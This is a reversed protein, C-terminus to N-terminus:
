RPLWAPKWEYRPGRTLRRVDSGDARMTYLDFTGARDSHFALRKGDPSWTPGYSQGGSRTLRIVGTGNPRMTYIEPRGSRASAFAIRSGDPSWAAEGSRFKLLRRQRSGDANMAYLDYAGDVFVTRSRSFLITSGDPSWAPTSDHVGNRTLRHLGRGDVGIVYIENTGRQNLSFALHKGDPSWTPGEFTSRSTLVVRRNRGDADTVALSNGAGGRLRLWVFALLRGDNSAAPDLFADRADALLVHRASGDPRVAVIRPPPLTPGADEFVITSPARVSEPAADSALACACAVAVGFAVARRM